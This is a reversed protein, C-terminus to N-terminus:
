LATTPQNNEARKYSVISWAKSQADQEILGDNKLDELITRPIHGAHGLHGAHIGLTRGIEVNSLPRQPEQSLLGYIAAKLKAYGEQALAFCQATQM